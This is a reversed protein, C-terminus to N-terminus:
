AKIRAGLDKLDLRFVGSHCLESLVSELKDQRVVVPASECRTCRLAYRVRRRDLEVAAPDFAYRAQRAGDDVFQAAPPFNVPLEHWDPFTAGESTDRGFLHLKSPRPHNDCTIWVMEQGSAREETPM